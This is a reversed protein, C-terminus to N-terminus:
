RAGGSIDYDFKGSKIAAEIKDFNKEYEKQNMAQVQSETFEFKGNSNVEPRGRTDVAGAAGNGKPKKQPKNKEKYVSIAWIVSDPDTSDYVAKQVMDPQEEVWDHFADSKQLEMFDPHAKMIKAEAKERKVSEQGVKLGEVEDQLSSYRDDAIRKAMLEVIKAADPNTKVWADLEEDNEPVEAPSGNTEVAALREELAAIKDKLEEERKQSHRRLDGHRKKWTTEESTAEPTQNEDEEGGSNEDEEETGEQGQWEEMLKQLEEEDKKARKDKNKQNKSVFGVTKPTVDVTTNM